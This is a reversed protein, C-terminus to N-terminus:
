NDSIGMINLNGLSVTFKNFRTKDGSYLLAQIYLSHISIYDSKSKIEGIKQEVSRLIRASSISETNRFLLSHKGENDKSELISKDFQDLFQFHKFDDLTISSINEIGNIQETLWCCSNNDILFRNLRDKSIIRSNNIIATGYYNKRYRYMVDYTLSYRLTIEGIFKRFEKHLSKISNFRQINAQFYIAFIIAHFPTDFIQYGGDGINIFYDLFDDKNKDQFLYSEHELCNLVTTIYLQHFVHPILTQQEQPFKSYQYIDFGLVAKTTLYESLIDAIVNISKETGLEKIKAEIEEIKKKTLRKM